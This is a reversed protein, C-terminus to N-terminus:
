TDVCLEVKEKETKYKKTIAEMVWDNKVWYLTYKSIKGKRFIRCLNFGLKYFDNSNIKQWSKM